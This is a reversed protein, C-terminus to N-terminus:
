RDGLAVVGVTMAAWALRLRGQASRAAIASFVVAPVALILLVIDDIAARSTGHSVDSVIWVVFALFVAGAVAAVHAARPM